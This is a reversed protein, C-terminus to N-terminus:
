RWWWFWLLAAVVSLVALSTAVARGGSSRDAAWQLLLAILTGAGHGILTGAGPRPVTAPGSFWQDSLWQAVALVLTLAVLGAALAGSFGRLARLMSGPLATRPIPVTIM